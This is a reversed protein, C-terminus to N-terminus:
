LSQELVCVGLDLLHHVLHADGVLHQVQVGAHLLGAVLDHLLEKGPLGDDGALIPDLAGSVLYGLQM